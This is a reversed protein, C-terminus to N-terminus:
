MALQQAMELKVQGIEEGVSFKVLFWPVPMLAEMQYPRQELDLLYLLCLCPARPIRGTVLNVLKTTVGVSCVELSSRVPTTPIHLFLLLTQGPQSSTWHSLSSMEKPVM